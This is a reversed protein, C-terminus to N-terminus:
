YFLAEDEGICAFSAQTDAFNQLYISTATASEVALPIKRDM